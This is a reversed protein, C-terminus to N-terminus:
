APQGLQSPGIRYPRMMENDEHEVIHCHWVYQGPTDFKMRVRTVEGPYAIVTDKWGNEWAEPPRPASAAIRVTQTHENVRIGQRNVVQFLLEHVHIPHADATANYFEWVETSGLTPNTTVAEEWKEATWTGARSASVTVTGLRAEAPEPFTESELELLALPRPTGGVLPAIPPLRLFPPPTSTDAGVIPRVRFQMVQGTTDPAALPFDTSPM